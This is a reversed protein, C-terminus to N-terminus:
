DCCFRHDVNRSPMSEGSSGIVKGPIGVVTSMPPIDHLVVSNAGIKSCHGIRINGLIKAGAGILVGYEVKPHRDGEEKGTGGLTVGQFISVHDGIEATEGAVFGTAHDLLIGKGIKAAPHIDVSYFESILSQLHLALEHQGAKWVSHAIRYGTIAKFGKYNLLPNFHNKCAPDREFNAIVDEAISEMICPDSDLAKRFTLYLYNDADRLFNLKEALNSAVTDELSEYRLLRAHLWPTLVPESELVARAESRLTKWLNNVLDSM